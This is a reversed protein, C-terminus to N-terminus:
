RLENHIRQMKEEIDFLTVAHLALDLSFQETKETTNGKYRLKHELSAWMDMGITRIQIEVKTQEAGKSLFVPVSIVLHLSRYGTQKPHTVYDKRKVLQVDDQQILLKEITYIDEIYNTIVRIGAVDFINKQITNVTVPLQKKTLKDAISQISKMRGELHHIPNHHYNVQFEADLNELKTAVENLAAEYVQNMRTFDTLQVIIEENTKFRLTDEFVPLKNQLGQVDLVNRRNLFM